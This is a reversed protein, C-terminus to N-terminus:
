PETGNERGVGGEREVKRFNFIAFSLAGARSFLEWLTIIWGYLSFTSSSLLFWGYLVDM